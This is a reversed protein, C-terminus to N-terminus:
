EFNYQIWIKTNHQLHKFSTALYAAVQLSEERIIRAWIQEKEEVTKRAALKPHDLKWISPYNFKTQAIPQPDVYGVRTNPMQKVLHAQM